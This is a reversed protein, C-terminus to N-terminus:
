TPHEPAHFAPRVAREVATCEAVGVAPCVSSRQASELAQEVAPEITRCITSQISREITSWKARFETSVDTCEVATHHAVGFATNLAQRFTTGFSFCSAPEVACKNAACLAGCFTTSQTALQTVRVTSVVTVKDAPFNAASITAFKTTWQTTHVTPLITAVHAFHFTSKVTTGISAVIAARETSM